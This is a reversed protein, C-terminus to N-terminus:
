KKKRKKLKRSLRGVTFAVALGAAAAGALPVTAKKLDLPAKKEPAREEALPDAPFVTDYEPTEDDTPVEFADLCLKGDLVELRLTHWAKRLPEIVLFAERYRSGSIVLNDSYLRDDLWVRCQAHDNRGLLFIGSGYFRITVGAGAVGEACTRNFHQYEAMGRLKWATETEPEQYRVAPSLCDQRYVYAPVPLPLQMREATISRFRNRYYASALSVRGSRVQPKGDLKAEYLSHGDAFCMVLTGLAGIGIKHTIGYEFDPVVGSQLVDDM